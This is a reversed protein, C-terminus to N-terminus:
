IASTSALCSLLSPSRVRYMTRTSDVCTYMSNNLCSIIHISKIYLYNEWTQGYDNHLLLLHHPPTVTHTCSPSLTHTPPLPLPPVSPLNREKRREGTFSKSHSRFYDRKKQSHIVGPKKRKRAVLLSLQSAHQMKNRERATRDHFYRPQKKTQKKTKTLNPTQNADQNHQNHRRM